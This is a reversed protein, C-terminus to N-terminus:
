VYPFRPLARPPTAEQWSTPFDEISIQRIMHRLWAATKLGAAISAKEVQELLDSPVYLHFHRVPGHPEGEDLTPTERRTLGWHMIHCLVAARPTHFRTALDDVKQRTTPDLRANMRITTHIAPEGTVTTRNKVSV